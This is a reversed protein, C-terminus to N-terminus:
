TVLRRQPPRMVLGAAVMAVALQPGDYGYYVTTLLALLLAVHMWLQLPTRARRSFWVAYTFWGLYAALAVFGYSFMVNWLQGQTGISINLTSSPRPSGNGFVPSELAGLFAERYITMRGVNTESYQLRMALEGAVGTVAGVVVALGMGITLVLLPGFRGRLGYRVAAYGGAILVALFMGRNLTAFAPVLAAALLGIVLVRQWRRGIALAAAAFPVLLAMNCGWGNTYAFPASPRTFLVPSGYPRQVESFSPHVLARVYDNDTLSGPLLIETPTSLRGTPVLVGLWGGIVVTALYGIMAMVILRDSTRSRSCNVVYVLVVGAGVYNAMRVGFGVFRLGSNLEVAAAAAFALFLMWLLFGTPVVLRESVAMLVVMMLAVIPVAFAGLGLLWWVGYGAFLVVLPWSPLARQRRPRSEPRALPAPTLLESAM